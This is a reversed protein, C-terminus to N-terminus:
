YPSCNSFAYLVRAPGHLQLSSQCWQLRAIRRRSGPRSPIALLVQCVRAAGCLANQSGCVRAERAIEGRSGPLSLIALSVQCERAAGCESELTTGGESPRVPPKVVILQGRQSHTDKVLVRRESCQVNIRLLSTKPISSLQSVAAHTSSVRRSMFCCVASSQCRKLKAVDGRSGQLSESVVSSMSTRRRM